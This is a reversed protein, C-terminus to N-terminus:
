KRIIVAAGGGGALWVTITDAKSVHRTQKDLHNPQSLVDKADSYIDATYSGDGLFSLPISLQRAEHNTIAGIYWDDGQRRAIAVYEGTKADPVKTEDWNTPVQQIFEFGPQGEYAAPYDCVM